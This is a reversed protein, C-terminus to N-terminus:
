SRPVVSLTVRARRVDGATVYAGSNEFVVVDDELDHFAHLTDQHGGVAAFPALAKRTEALAQCMRRLAGHYTGQRLISQEDRTLWPAIEDDDIGDPRTTM